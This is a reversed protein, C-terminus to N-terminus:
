LEVAEGEVVGSDAELVIQELVSYGKDTFMFGQNGSKKVLWGNEVFQNRLSYFQSPTLLKKKAKLYVPESFPVGDLSRIAFDIILNYKGEDWDLGFFNTTRGGNSKIEFEHRVIRPEQSHNGVDGNGDLDHGLADEAYGIFEAIINEKRQSMESSWSKVFSYLFAVVAGVLIADWAIGCSFISNAITAGVYCVGGGVVAGVLGWVAAVQLPVVVASNTTYPIKAKIPSEIQTQM